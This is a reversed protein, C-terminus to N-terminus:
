WTETYELITNVPKREAAWCIVTTPFLPAELSSESPSTMKKSFLWGLLFCPLLKLTWTELPPACQSVSEASHGALIEFSCFGFSASVVTV